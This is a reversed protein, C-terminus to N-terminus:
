RCLFSKNRYPEPTREDRDRAQELKKAGSFFGIDGSLLIGIKWDEKEAKIIEAIQEPRYEVMM